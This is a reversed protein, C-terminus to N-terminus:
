SLWRLAAGEFERAADSLWSHLYESYSRSVSLEFHDLRSPCELVVHIQALRTRACRGVPFSQPHLDLGCGKAILERVASGQLEFSAFAHSMDTLALACTSLEADAQQDLGSPQNAQSVLLWEGPGVCLIRFTGPQTDGVRLPLEMGAFLLSANLPECSPMWTKLHLLTRAEVKTIQFAASSDDM